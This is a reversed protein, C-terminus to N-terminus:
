VHHEGGLALDVLIPPVTTAWEHSASVGETELVDRQGECYSGAVIPDIHLVSAVFGRHSAYFGALEKHVAAADAGHRQTATEIAGLEKRVIRAAQDGVIALSRTQQTGAPAMNRPELPTDLGPLPNLNEKGRVENRTMWGNQIASSYVGSRSTPDGRLVADMLFESFYTRDADILDRRIAQELTVCWPRVSGQWYELEYMYASAYSQTGQRKLRSVPVNLWRAAEEVQFQRTELFQADKDTSGMNIWSMGEELVVVRHANGLGSHTQEWRKKLRDAAETTLKSPHSLAGPPKGGAGFFRAGYQETALTLGISERAYTILSVGILGDISYGRVHFVEDQSFVIDPGGDTPKYIYWFKPIPFQRPSNGLVQWVIEIKPTVRDPHFPILQDVYGRAGPVILSYHNGRALTHGMVTQWYDIATQWRNPTYRLVDAIPHQSAREKGGDARWRFMQCPLSGVDRALMTIGDWIASAQLATEPTVSVGAASASGVPGYWFDDDPAKTQARLGGISLLRDFFM